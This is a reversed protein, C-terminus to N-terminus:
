WRYEVECPVESRWLVTIQFDSLRHQILHNGNATQWPDERWPEALVQRVEEERPWRQHAKFHAEMFTWARYFDDRGVPAPFAPFFNALIAAFARQPAMWEVDIGLATVPPVACAAAVVARSHSKSITADPGIAASLRAALAAARASQVGHPLRMHVEDSPIIETSYLVRGRRM